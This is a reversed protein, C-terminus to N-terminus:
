ALPIINQLLSLLVCSTENPSMEGRVELLGILEESGIAMALYPSAVIRYRYGGVALRDAGRFMCADNM